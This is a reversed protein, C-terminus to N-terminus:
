GGARRAAEAGTKGAVTSAASPVDARVSSPAHENVSKEPLRQVPENVLGFVHRIEDSARAGVGVPVLGGPARDAHRRCIESCELATERVAQEIEGAIFEAGKGLAYMQGNRIWYERGRQLAEAHDIPM